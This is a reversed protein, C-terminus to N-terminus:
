NEGMLHRALSYFEISSSKLTRLRVKAIPTFPLPLKQKDGNMMFEGLLSGFIIGPGIGRGNYGMCSYMGQGVEHLHPIANTTFALQGNWYHSWQVDKLEPALKRLSNTAWNKHINETFKTFHGLTGFIIRGASDRRFARLMLRTDWVGQKDPLISEASEDDIPTTALQFFKIPIFSHHIDGIEEGTYANTALLVKEAYITAGSLKIAWFNGQREFYEAKTNEYIEAGSNIAQQALGRVLSLPQVTGGRPHFIGGCYNHIGTLRVAQEATMVQFSVGYDLMPKYHKIQNQLARDNHALHCTGSQTAECEIGYNRILNFVHDPANALTKILKVGDRSGLRKVIETASLWLGANVLGTNRGSGGYGIEHQDVIAVKVGQGALKIAASIGTYGAGVVLFDLKIGNKPAHTLPKEIASENWVPENSTMIM